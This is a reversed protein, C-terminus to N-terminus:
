QMEISIRARGTTEIRDAIASELGPWALQPKNLYVFLEGDRRPVVMEALQEVEPVAVEALDNSALNDTQEPPQRDLFSEESGTGGIRLILAGWPRDLSRRLGYISGMAVAKIPSLRSLPQGGMFSEEGWFTWKGLGDATPLRHVVARYRVGSKLFVGTSVCLKTPVGDGQSSADFVVEKRKKGNVLDFGDSQLSLAGNENCFSGFSDRVNFVYHNLFTFGVLLVALASATPAVQFKFTRLSWQYAASQRLRRVAPQPLFCFLLVAALILPVPLATYTVFAQDAMGPLRLPQFWSWAHGACYLLIYMIGAAAFVRKFSWRREIKPLAPPVNSNPMSASWLRRMRDNMSQRLSIGIKTLVIVLLVSVLFWAPDRAYANLWRDAIQPLVTGILRITDSVLRLRTRLEQFLYSDRYLPYLLLHATAFVTLFYIARRRWALDWVIEQAANRAPANIGEAPPQTNPEVTATPVVVPPHSEGDYSADGTTVIEYRGPLGIPAYLHAGVEIRGFVSAHIKPIPMTGSAPMDEYLDAIKRPGYRYYAGLGSRSDYLRGDKDKSSDTVLLADPDAGPLKKFKLGAQEAEALMWSLSVNALSDDPYGGGVNSHVGAFWVQLLREESTPRKEGAPRTNTEDEDWLVPAFTAREEDIAIAHRAKRIAPHFETNPLELPWIWRDVGRTMEDIPLGYAAVTDWLGLFEISTVPRENAKYFRRDLWTRVLRFPFQLNLRNYKEHRYARYAARAKRQLDAEDEFDALGQNLVLGTLVRITFAGRSFGFAYIQDGPQHNRSLFKYLGLVNRKLGWGFIGGLLALPMFSSTGVGDDYVAIQDSGKLDLLQFLRWVNTRWVKGAANGTGDSLLVIRKPM